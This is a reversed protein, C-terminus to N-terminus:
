SCVPFLTQAHHSTTTHLIEMDWKLTDQPTHSTCSKWSGYRHSKNHRHHVGEGTVMETHRDTLTIHLKELEWTHKTIHTVDVKGLEWKQMHTLAVERTSNHTLTHTTCRRWNGNRHKPHHIHPQRTIYTINCSTWNGHRPARHHLHHASEFEWAGSVDRVEMISTYNPLVSEYSHCVILNVGACPM